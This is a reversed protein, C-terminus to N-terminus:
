TPFCAVKLWPCFTTGALWYKSSKDKTEGGMVALIILCVFLFTQIDLSIMVTMYSQQPNLKPRICMQIQYSIIACNLCLSTDLEGPSFLKMEFHWM